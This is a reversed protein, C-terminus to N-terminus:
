LFTLVDNSSYKGYLFVNFTYKFLNTLDMNLIVETGFTFYIVQLNCTKVFDITYM